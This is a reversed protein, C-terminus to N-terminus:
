LKSNKNKLRRLYIENELITSAITPTGLGYGILDPTIVGSKPSMQKFLSALQTFTMDKLQCSYAKISNEDGSNVLKWLSENTASYQENIVINSYNESLTQKNDYKMLLLVRELIEKKNQQM